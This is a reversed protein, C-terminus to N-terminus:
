NIFLSPIFYVCARPIFNVCAAVKKDWLNNVIQIYLFTAICIELSLWRNYREMNRGYINGGKKQTKCVSIGFLTKCM